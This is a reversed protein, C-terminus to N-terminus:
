RWSTTPGHETRRRDISVGNASGVTLSDGLAGVVKIDAPRVANVSTPVTASPRMVDADCSYTAQGPTYPDEKAFVVAVVLALVIALWKM